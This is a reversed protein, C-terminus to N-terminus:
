GISGTPTNQCRADAIIKKQFFDIKYVDRQQRLTNSMGVPNISGGGNSM